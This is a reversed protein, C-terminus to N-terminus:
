ITHSITEWRLPLPDILTSFVTSLLVYRGLLSSIVNHSLFICLSSSRLKYREGYIICAILNLLIHAPCTAHMSSTLSIRVFNWNLIHLIILLFFYTNGVSFATILKQLFFDPRYKFQRRARARTRTFVSINLELEFTWIESRSSRTFM